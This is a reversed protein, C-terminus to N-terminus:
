ECPHRDDNTHRTRCISCLPARALRGWHGAQRAGEVVADREIAWDQQITQGWNRWGVDSLGLCDLGDRVFEGCSEAKERNTMTPVEEQELVNCGAYWFAVKSAFGSRDLSLAM